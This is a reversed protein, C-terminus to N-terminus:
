AVTSTMEPGDGIVDTVNHDVGEMQYRSERTPPFSSGVRSCLVTGIGVRTGDVQRSAAFITSETM